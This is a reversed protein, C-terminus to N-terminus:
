VAHRAVNRTSGVFYRYPLEFLVTAALLSLLRLFSDPMKGWSKQAIQADKRGYM